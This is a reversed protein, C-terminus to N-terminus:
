RAALAPALAAELEGVRPVGSMRLLETGARDFAVVTPTRLVNLARAVDPREAVDIERHVIEPRRTRLADLVEATRRCPACVPSSLQLLLVREADGPEAGALAWGGEARGTRLRGDRRRLVLGVGTALGLVAVLVSLGLLDVGLHVRWGPRVNRRCTSGSVSSHSERGM